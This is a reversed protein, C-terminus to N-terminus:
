WFICWIWCFARGVILSFLSFLSGLDSLSLSSRAEGRRRAARDDCRASSRHSRRDLPVILSRARGVIAGSTPRADSTSQHAAHNDSSLRAREDITSRAARRDRDDITSRAARDVIAITCRAARRRPVITPRAASDDIAGSTPAALHSREERESRPERKERRERITPRANQRIQHM